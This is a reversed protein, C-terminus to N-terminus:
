CSNTQQRSETNNLEGQAFQLFIGRRKRNMLSPKMMRAPITMLSASYGLMTMMMQNLLLTMAIITITKKKSTSMISM